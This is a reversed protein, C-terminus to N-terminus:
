VLLQRPQLLLWLLMTQLKRPQPLPQLLLRLRQFLEDEALCPFRVPSRERVRM